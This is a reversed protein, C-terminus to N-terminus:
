NIPSHEALKKAPSKLLQNYFVKSAAGFGMFIIIWKISQGLYPLWIVLEFIVLGIFIKLYENLAKMKLLKQTIWNVVLLASHIYGYIFFLFYITFQLPMLPIGVVSLVMIMMIPLVLFLSVFGWIICGVPHSSIYNEVRKQYIPAIYFGILAFMFMAGLRLLSLVLKTWDSQLYIGFKSNKLKNFVMNWSEESLPVGVKVSKGKIQAGSDTQVNGGLTNLEETIRSSSFLRVDGGIIILRKVTGYIDASGAIVTVEDLEEDERIVLHSGMVVRNNGKKLVGTVEGDEPLDKKAKALFYQIWEKSRQESNQNESFGVILQYEKYDNGIVLPAIKENILLETEFSKVFEKISDLNPNEQPSLVAINVRGFGLKIQLEVPVAASLNLSAFLILLFLKM